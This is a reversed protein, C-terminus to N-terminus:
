LRLHRRHLTEDKGHHPSTKRQLTLFYDKGEVAMVFFAGGAHPLHKKSTHSEVLNIFTLLVSLETFM